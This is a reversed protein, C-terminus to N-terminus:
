YCTTCFNSGKPSTAEGPARRAGEIWFILQTISEAETASDDIDLLEGRKVAHIAGAIGM